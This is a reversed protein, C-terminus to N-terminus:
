AGRASPERSPGVPSACPTSTAPDDMNFVMGDLGADLYAAVQECVSDPGGAVVYARYREEDM